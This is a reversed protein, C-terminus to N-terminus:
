AVGPIYLCNAARSPVAVGGVIKYWSGWTGDPLDAWFPTFQAADFSIIIQQCVAHPAGWGQSSCLYQLMQGDSQTADSGWTGGDGWTEPGVGWASDLTWPGSDSYVVVWFRSWDVTDGDWDWTSGPAGSFSFSETGDAAKTACAGNNSFVRVMCWWGALYGQIQEALAYPSGKRARSTLWRLLRGIYSADSEARGRIIGREQGLFPLADPGAQSPFRLRVAQLTLDILVDFHLAITWILRYLWFNRLWRARALIPLRNRLPTIAM